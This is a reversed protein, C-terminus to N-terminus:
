LKKSTKKNEGQKKFQSIIIGILGIVTAILGVVIKIM